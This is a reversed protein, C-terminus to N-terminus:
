PVFNARGEGVENMGIDDDLASCMLEIEEFCGAVVKRPIPFQYDGKVEVETGEPAPTSPVLQGILVKAGEWLVPPRLSLNLGLKESRSILSESLDEFKVLLYLIFYKQNAAQVASVLQPPVDGNAQENQVDVSLVKM